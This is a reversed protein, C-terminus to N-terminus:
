QPPRNANRIERKKDQGVIDRLRRPNNGSFMSGASRNNKMNLLPSAKRRWMPNKKNVGPEGKSGAGIGDIGGGSANNVPVASTLDEAIIQKVVSKIQLITM